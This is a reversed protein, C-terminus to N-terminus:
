EKMWYYQEYEGTFFAANQKPDSVDIDHFRNYAQAVGWGVPDLFVVEKLASCRESAGDYIYTLGKGLTVSTLKECGGFANYSVEEVSDPITLTEIACGQFACGNITKLGNGLDLKALNTCDLFASHGIEEMSDPLTVETLYYADKLASGAIM